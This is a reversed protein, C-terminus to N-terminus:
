QADTSTITAQSLHDKQQTNAITLALSRSATLAFPRSQPRTLAIAFGHHTLKFHSIYQAKISLFLKHM